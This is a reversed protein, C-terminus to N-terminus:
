AAAMGDGRRGDIALVGVGIGGLVIAIGGLVAALDAIGQLAGVGLASAAAAGAISLCLGGVFALGLMRPRGPALLLSLITIVAGLLSVWGGGFLLVITPISELPDNATTAALISSASTCALGIGFLALGIRVARGHLERPGAVSIAIAGGAVTALGALLVFGGLSALGVGVSGGMAYILGTAIVLGWGVIVLM